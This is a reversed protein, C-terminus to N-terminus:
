RSVFHVHDATSCISLTSRSSAHDSNKGEGLETLSSCEHKRKRSFPEVFSLDSSGGCASPRVLRLM